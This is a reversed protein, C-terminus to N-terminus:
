LIYNLCEGVGDFFEQYEDKEVAWSVKSSNGSHSIPTTNRRDFLNKIKINVFNPVKRARLFGQARTARYDTIESTAASPDSLFLVSQIENLLHNLAHSFNEKQESEVRLRIQEIVTNKDSLWLVQKDSLNFYGPKAIHVDSEDFLTFIEIMQSNTKVRELLEVDNFDIQCLFNVIISLDKTNLNNKSLLFERFYRTARESMLIMIMLPTPSISVLDFDFQEDFIDELQSINEPKLLLQEIPGDYVDKL